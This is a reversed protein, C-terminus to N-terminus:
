SIPLNIHIYFKNSDFASVALIIIVENELASSLLLTIGCVLYCLFMSIWNFSYHVHTM